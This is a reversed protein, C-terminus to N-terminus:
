ITRNKFFDYVEHLFSLSGYVIIPKEKKSMTLAMELATNVDEGSYVQSAYKKACEALINSDLGRPHNPRITIVVDNKLVTNALIKEYEKDKFIGIVRILPQDKFYLNTSEKLSRAADENHAGDVIVYPEKGVISFRGEWQAQKIGEIVQNRSIIFGKNSLVAAAEIAVKANKVQNSSLMTTVFEMEEGFANCFYTFRTRELTFSVNERPNFSVMTLKANKEKCVENLVNCVEPKQEESVVSIGTKIIGAKERAIEILSDGLVAMHDRSISTFVACVTNKIVNTADLRGGLGVELVVIKCEQELFELFAVATEIEFATPHVWGDEKMLDAAEKVKTLHVCFADLTIWNGGVQIREFYDFITPSIYRGVKYGAEKLISAIYTSTSGKGNTGAVHVFSLKDQPNGLRRLLEKITELGLVSGYKSVEEIYDMAEKYSIM